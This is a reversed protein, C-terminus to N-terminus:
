RSGRIAKKKKKGSQGKGECWNEERHDLVPGGKGGGRSCDRLESCTRVSDVRCPNTTPCKKEESRGIETENGQSVKTVICLIERKKRRRPKEERTQRGGTDLPCGTTFKSRNRQISRSISTGRYERKQGSKEGEVFKRSDKKVRSSQLWEVDV